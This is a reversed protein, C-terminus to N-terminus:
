CQEQNPPAYICVYTRIYINFTSYARSILNPSNCNQSQPPICGFDSASASFFIFLIPVPTDTSCVSLPEEGGERWGRWGGWAKVEKLAM